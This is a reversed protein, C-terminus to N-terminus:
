RQASAFDTVPQSELVRPVDVHPGVIQNLPYLHNRWRHRELMLEQAGVFIRRQLRERPPLDREAFARVAALERRALAASAEIGADSLDEWREDGRRDGQATALAPDADLQREYAADLFAAFRAATATAAAAAAAAAPM